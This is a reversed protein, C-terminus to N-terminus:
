RSLDYHRAVESAYHSGVEEANEHLWESLRTKGTAPGQPAPLNEMLGKYEEWTLVRRSSAM